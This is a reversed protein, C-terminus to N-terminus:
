TGFLNSGSVKGRLILCFFQERFLSNAVFQTLFDTAYFVYYCVTTMYSIPTRYQDVENGNVLVQSSVLVPLNFLLFVLNLALTTVAFKRDKAMIEKRATNNNIRNRSKKIFYIVVVSCATLFLFPIITSNFDDLWLLTVTSNNICDVRADISGNQAITGNNIRMKVLDSKWLIFSYLTLNFAVVTMILTLQFKRVFFLAFRHAFVISIFRDFSILVLLWNSIPSTAFNIFLLFSCFFASANRLSYQFKVLMLYIPLQLLVLTNVISTTRFYISLTTNRLPNKSYVRFVLYNGIFGGIITILSYFFLFTEILVSSSWEM